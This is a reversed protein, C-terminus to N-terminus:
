FSLINKYISIKNGFSWSQFSLNGFRNVKARILFIVKVPRDVVQLFIQQSIKRRFIPFSTIKSFFMREFWKKSFKIVPRQRRHRVERRRGQRGPGQLQRSQVRRPEWTAAGGVPESFFLIQITSVRVQSQSKSGAYCRAVSDPFKLPVEKSM